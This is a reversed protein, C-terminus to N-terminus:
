RANNSRPGRKHPLTQRESEAAGAASGTPQGTSQAARLDDFIGPRRLAEKPASASQAGEGETPTAAAKMKMQRAKEAQAVSKKLMQTLDVTDPTPALAPSPTPTQPAVSKPTPLIEGTPTATGRTTPKVPIGNKKTMVHAREFPGLATGKSPADAFAQAEDPTVPAFTRPVGDNRITTHELTAPDYKYGLLARSDVPTFGEPLPHAIQDQLNTLPAKPKQTSPGVADALQQQLNTQPRQNKLPVGEQLPKGGLADNIQQQLNVLAGQTTPPAVPQPAEPAPRVPRFGRIPIQGLGESPDVAPQAGSALAQAQLVEPAPTEPLKAGPFVPQRFGRIPIQNLGASPDVAPQAGTSLANGQLLEPAPTEPLTAGPLVPTEPPTALRKAISKGLVRGLAGGALGLGVPEGVLHGAYGGVGSGVATAINEPTAADKLVQGTAKAAQVVKSPAAKVLSAGKEIAAQGPDSALALQAIVGTLGGLAGRYNKASVDQGATEVPPGIVPTAQLNAHALGYGAKAVNPLVPQGAAINQGADYAEQAGEKVGKVATKGYNWLMKGATVAPGGIIEATSPQAAKLEDMSTPLGLSQGLRKFYGPPQPAASAPATSSIAGAQKALTDYDPMSSIAGAQKALADYDVTQTQPSM